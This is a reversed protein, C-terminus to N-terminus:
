GNRVEKQAAQDVRPAAHFAARDIPTAALLMTAMHMATEWEEKYKPLPCGNQVDYLSQLVKIYRRNRAELDEALERLADSPAPPAAFEACIRMTTEVVDALGTEDFGGVEDRFYCELEEALTIPKSM